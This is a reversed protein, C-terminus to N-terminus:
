EILSPLIWYKAILGHLLYKSEMKESFQEALSITLIECFLLLKALFSIM